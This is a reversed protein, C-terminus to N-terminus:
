AIHINSAPCTVDLPHHHLRHGIASLLGKMFVNGLAKDIVISALGPM